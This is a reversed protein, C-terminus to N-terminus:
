FIRSSKTIASGSHPHNNLMKLQNLLQNATLLFRSNVPLGAKKLRQALWTNCTRFFHYSQTSLYFQDARGYDVSSITMGMEDRKFSSAIERVLKSFTQEELHLCVTKRKQGFYSEPNSYFGVIRIVGQTPILVARAALLILDDSSQYFAEDGWGFYVYNYQKYHKLEPWDDPHIDSTNLVIATHWGLKVIHIGYTRETQSNTQLAALAFLISISLIRIKMACCLRCILM